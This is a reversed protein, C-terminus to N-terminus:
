RTEANVVLPLGDKGIPAYILKANPSEFAKFQLYRPTLTEDILKQAEAQGGARIKQAEAEGDARIRLADGEGKARIRAIEADKM